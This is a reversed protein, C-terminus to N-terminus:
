EAFIAAPTNSFLMRELSTWKVRIEEGTDCLYPVFTGYPGKVASRHLFLVKETFHARFIGPPHSAIALGDRFGLCRELFGSHRLHAHLDTGKIASDAVQDTHIWAQVKSLPYETPGSNELEPYIPTYVEDESHYVYVGYSIPSTRDVNLVVEDIPWEPREQRWRLALHALTQTLFAEDDCLRSEQEHTLKPLSRALADMLRERTKEVRRLEPNDLVPSEGSVREKEVESKWLSSDVSLQTNEAHYPFVERSFDSGNKSPRMAMVAVGGDSFREKM